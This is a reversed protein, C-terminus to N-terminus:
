RCLWDTRAPAARDGPRHGAHINRNTQQGMASFRRLAHHFPIPLHPPQAPGSAPDAGANAEASMPSVFMTGLPSSACRSPKVLPSRRPLPGFISQNDCLRLCSLREVLLDASLITAQDEDHRVGFFAAQRALVPRREEAEVVSKAYRAFADFDPQCDDAELWLRGVGYDVDLGYQFEFPLAEPSGVLLLYCPVKRPDAPAAPAAGNLLLFAAWDDPTRGQTPWTYERYHPAAERYQLLPALRERVKQDLGAAWVVGWGARALSDPDDYLPKFTQNTARFHKAGLHKKKAPVIGQRAAVGAVDELAQHPELLYAGTRGSIGNAYVSVPCM